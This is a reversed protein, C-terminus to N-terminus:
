KNAWLGNLKKIVKIELIIQVILMGIFIGPILFHGSFDIDPSMKKSTIVSEVSLYTLMIVFLGAIANIISFFLALIKYRESLLDTLLYLYRGMVFILILLVIADKSTLVYYTDHLQMDVTSFKFSTVTGVILVSLIGFGIWWILQRNM